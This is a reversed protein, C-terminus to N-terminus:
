QGLPDGFDASERHGIGLTRLGFARSGKTTLGTGSGRLTTVSGSDNERRSGVDLDLRGDGDHDLLTLSSGFDDNTEAKGPVGKTDQDYSSSGSTRWGGSAGHVITVRGKNRNEGRAGIVLDAFGDRDLDALAPASGFADNPESVGPVGGSGQALVLTRAVAVGGTPKLQLIKVSGVADEEPDPVAVVLDPRVAATVRALAISTPGAYAASHAVRACGTPGGAAGPCVSVSGPYNEDPGNAGDSGVVLDIKGDGDLDGAALSAGFGNDWDQHGGKPGQRRLVQVPSEVLGNKGGAFVQVEGSAGYTEDGVSQGDAGPIGTALDLYGDGTLDAAVLADGLGVRQDDHDASNRLQVSAAPDLGRPSGPVVTLVETLLGYGIYDPTGIVLDAYGDRNFDASTLGSGLRGGEEPQYDIGPTSQTLLREHLSLGSKTGPLVVVGGADPLSDVTLGPAAAVLEQRGDGDFDYPRAPPTAASAAPGSCLLPAVVGLALVAAFALRTM